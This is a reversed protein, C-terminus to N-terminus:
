KLRRTSAHWPRRETFVTPRALRDEAGEEALHTQRVGDAGVIARREGRGANVAQRRQIHPPHLEADHMLADRGRTRLLVAGVLAHM